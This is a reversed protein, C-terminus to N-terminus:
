TRRSADVKALDADRVKPMDILAIHLSSDRGPNSGVVEITVRSVISGFPAVPKGDPVLAQTWIQNPAMSLASTANGTRPGM